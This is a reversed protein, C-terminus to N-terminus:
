ILGNRRLKKELREKIAKIGGDIFCKQYSALEEESITCKVAEMELSSTGQILNIVSNALTLSLMTLEREEPTKHRDLSGVGGVENDVARCRLKLDEIVDIGLKKYADQAMNCLDTLGILGRKWEKLPTPLPNGHLRQQDGEELIWAEIFNNKKAYLTAFFRHNGDTVYYYADPAKILLIPSVKVKRYDSNVTNTPRVKALPVRVLGKGKLKSKTHLYEM